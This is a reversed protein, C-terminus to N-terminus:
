NQIIDVILKCVYSQSTYRYHYNLRSFRRYSIENFFYIYPMIRCVSKVRNKEGRNRHSSIIKFILFSFSAFKKKRKKRFDARFGFATTTRRQRCQGRPATSCYSDSIFSPFYKNIKKKIEEDNYEPLPFSYFGFHNLARM